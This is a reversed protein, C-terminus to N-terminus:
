EGALFDLIRGPSFSKDLGLLLNKRNLSYKRGVEEFFDNKDNLGAFNASAWESLYGFGANGLLTHASTIAAGRLFIESYPQLEPCSIDDTMKQGPANMETGIIIPLERKTAAKIFEDLKRMKATKTEPDSVNWNRDPIINAAAAGAGMQIDLYKEPDAEGSSEGSLWTLTPIAGCAATFKNMDRVSPFASPEPPVYGAGGSKMTRARILAQLKVPDELIAVIENKATKLKKSWFATREAPDPFVAAAKEFYATCLHRETANGAPTLPVVDNEYDLSVSGLYDNVREMVCTTRQAARSCLGDLFVKADSPIDTTTFGVGMHYSIGPEGPSNIEHEILEPVIVRTEIGASARLGLLEAAALFEDLSDLVDFEVIGLAFLGEFRGWCAIYSPSFGYGNFSFFSHCHMNLRFEGPPRVEDPNRLISEAFEAVAEARKRADFSNLRNELKELISQMKKRLFPEKRHGKEM